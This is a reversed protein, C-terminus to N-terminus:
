KCLYNDDYVVKKRTTIWSQIDEQEKHQAKMVNHNLISLSTLMEQTEQVIKKSNRLLRHSQDREM